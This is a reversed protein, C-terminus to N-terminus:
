WTYYTNCTNSNICAALHQEESYVPPVAPTARERARLEKKLNDM